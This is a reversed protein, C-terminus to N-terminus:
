RGPARAPRRASRGCCILFPCRIRARAACRRQSRRGSRGAVAAPSDGPFVPDRPKEPADPNIASHEGIRRDPEILELAPNVKEQATDDRIVQVLHESYFVNGDRRRIWAHGHYSDSTELVARSSDDFAKYSAQDVHLLRTDSGVLDGRHYGFVDVVDGTCALIKRSQMEVLFVPNSGALFVAQLLFDSIFRPGEKRCTDGATGPISM